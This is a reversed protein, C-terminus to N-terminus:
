CLGGPSAPALGPAPPCWARTLCRSPRAVAAPAVHLDPSEPYVNQQRGAGACLLGAERRQAPQGCVRDESGGSALAGAAAGAGPM